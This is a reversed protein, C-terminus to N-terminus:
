ANVAKIVAFNIVVSESLSGGTLNRLAIVCSGASVADVALLYAGVTAGSAICARVVDTASITSNTLTFSVATGAALAAGNMTIQGTLKNLTVGTSKSTAQTVAGGAGAIYGVGGVWATGTFQYACGQAISFISWGQKPTYFTWSSSANVWRAIKTAQGAWAGTPSAAVVYRAGDAPSGPPTALTVDLVSGQLLDDVAQLNANMQATWGNDGASYNGTIPGLNPLTSGSM